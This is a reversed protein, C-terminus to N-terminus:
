GHLIDCSVEGEFICVDMAPAMAFANMHLSPVHCVNLFYLVSEM